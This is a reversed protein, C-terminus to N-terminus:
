IQLKCEQSYCFREFSVLIRIINVVLHLSDILVAAAFRGVYISQQKPSELKWFCTQSM